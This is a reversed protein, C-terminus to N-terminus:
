WCRPRTGDSLRLLLLVGVRLQEVLLRILGSLMGEAIGRLESGVQGRTTASMARSPRMKKTERLQWCDCILTLWLSAIAVALACTSKLGVSM